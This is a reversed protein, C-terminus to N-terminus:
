NADAYKVTSLLSNQSVGPTIHLENAPTRMNFPYKALETAPVIKGNPLIFKKWSPQGTRTCPDNRTGVSSTATSDAVTTPIRGTAIGQELEDDDVGIFYVRSKTNPKSTPELQQSETTDHVEVQCPPPSLCYYFNAL